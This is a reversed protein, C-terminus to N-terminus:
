PHVGGSVVEALGAGSHEREGPNELAFQRCIQDLLGWSRSLLCTRRWM